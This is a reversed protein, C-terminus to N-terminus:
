PTHNREHRDGKSHKHHHYWALALAGLIFAITITIIGFELWDNRSM